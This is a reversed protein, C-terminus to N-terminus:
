ATVLRITPPKMAAYADAVRMQAWEIEPHTSRMAHSRMTKDQRAEEILQQRRNMLSVPYYQGAQCTCFSIDGAIMQVMRELYLPCIRTLQPAAVIGFRCKDCGVAWHQENSRPVYAALAKM